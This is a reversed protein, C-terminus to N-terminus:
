PASAASGFDLEAVVKGADPNWLLVRESGPRGLTVAMMGDGRATVNTIHEGEALPLALRTFGNTLSTEVTVGHHPHMMRHAIVGIMVAVGAVIMVGMIIVAAFM